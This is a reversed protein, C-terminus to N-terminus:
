TRGVPPQQSIPPGAPADDRPAPDSAAFHEMLM